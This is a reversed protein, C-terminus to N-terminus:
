GSSSSSQCLLTFNRIADAMECPNELREIGIKIAFADAAYENSIPM